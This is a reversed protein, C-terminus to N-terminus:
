AIILLSPFDKLSSVVLRWFRIDLETIRFVWSFSWIAYFRLRQVSEDASGSAPVVKVRCTREQHRSRHSVHSTQRWASRPKGVLHCQMCMLYQPFSSVADKSVMLPFNALISFHSWSAVASAAASGMPSSKSLARVQNRDCNM